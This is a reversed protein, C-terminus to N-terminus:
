QAKLAHSNRIDDVFIGSAGCCLAYRIEQMSSAGWVYVPIHAQRAERVLSPDLHEVDPHLAQAGLRDALALPDVLRGAFLVGIPINDDLRRVEALAVHDFSSILVRDGAGHLYVADLVRRVLRRMLQVPSTKLEINLCVDPIRDLVEEITPVTTGSFRTDFWSGADLNKIDILCCEAAFGTGNTTRDVTPDHLVVVGGDGTLRVDLEIMDAGLEAARVFAPLTNEPCEASAGRHAIWITDNRKLLEQITM